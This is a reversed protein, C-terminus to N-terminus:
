LISTHSTRQTGTASHFTLFSVNQAMSLPNKGARLELHSYFTFYIFKYPYKTMLTSKLFIFFLSSVRDTGHKECSTKGLM